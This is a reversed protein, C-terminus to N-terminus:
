SDDGDATVEREGWEPVFEKVGKLKKRGKPSTLMYTIREAILAAAWDLREYPGIPGSIQEYAQWETIERSSIKGLLEDVTM